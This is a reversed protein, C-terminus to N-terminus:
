CIASYNSPCRFRYHTQTEKVDCSIGTPRTTGFSELIKQLQQAEINAGEEQAHNSETGARKAVRLLEAM